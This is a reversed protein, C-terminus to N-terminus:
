AFEHPKPQSVAFTDDLELSGDDVAETLAASVDASPVGRQELDRLLETTTAAGGREKLVTLIWKMVVESSM